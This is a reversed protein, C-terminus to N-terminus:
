NQVVQFPNRLCVFTEYGWKALQSLGTLFLSADEDENPLIQCCVVFLRALSARENANWGELKGDDSMTLQPGDRLYTRANAM